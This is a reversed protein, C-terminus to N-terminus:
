NLTHGALAANWHRAIAEANFYPGSPLGTKVNVIFKQGGIIKVVFRIM